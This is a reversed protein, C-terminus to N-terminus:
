HLPYGREGPLKGDLKVIVLNKPLVEAADVFTLAGPVSVAVDIAMQNSYVVRPGAPAEARFVKAIWYQRFQAESMQYIEKLLVDRERAGPARILLSVRLSPSWFQREGLLLKRLDVLSLNRVPTDDRVVVALDAGQALAAGTVVALLFQLILRTM